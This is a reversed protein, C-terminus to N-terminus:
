IYGNESQRIQSCILGLDSFYIFNDDYRFYFLNTIRGNGALEIFITAM